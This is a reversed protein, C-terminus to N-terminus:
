TGASFATTLKALAGTAMGPLESIKGQVDEVSKTIDAQVQKVSALEANAKAKADASGFPNSATATASTTVKTALLPIKATAASVKATLSTVKNPTEKLATVTTNLRNLLGEVEAKAEASVDGKFTLEVKGSDFTAKAMSMVEGAALGYKKPLKGLDDIISQVDDVPKTVSAVEADLEKPISKLEEM